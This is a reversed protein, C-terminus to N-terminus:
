FPISDDVEDPFNFRSAGSSLEPLQAGESLLGTTPNYGLPLTLGTAQGTYRDKLVRFVSCRDEEDEAQQDREIGFMFYSWFGIARSGKFNKITVRGGEEHSKGEPTSLHSVFLIWINLENAIGAMEKMIQEISGKEDATDAMATLHDVYFLKIGQSIAMYRIKAAVVEWDTQGFSDYFTVRDGMADLAARLEDKTWGANPVHFRKGVLKGALRKGTEVPKQELFICGVQMDLVTIDYIAQQTIFDTKGVGTGAGLAVIEGLRRGYTRANLTPLFWPFGLEIDKEIEERIDALSVLGDPRYPKAQWIANIVAAGEGAQLCENADKRPLSAVKCKGPSFLPACEATADLGPADMDFMLIVSDFGELYEIHQQLVKKAAQAGLPISVVPWKNGQLQSVSMCDIEGETIVIMKGSTGWLQQGFLGARKPEGIFKFDKNAYRVKQAVRENGDYYPALQCPTGRKDAGVTYGFKRCTEENIGRKPLARIEGEILEPSSM